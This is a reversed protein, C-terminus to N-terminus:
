KRRKQCDALTKEAQAQAYVALAMAARAEETSRSAAMRQESSIMMQKHAEAEAAIARSEAAEALKSSTRSDLYQYGGFALSGITVLIM